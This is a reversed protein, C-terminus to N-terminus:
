PNNSIRKVSLSANADESLNIDSVATSELALDLIEGGNLHMIISGSFITDQDTSLVGTQLTSLIFGGGNIRVGASITTITATSAVRVMFNIEYDGFQFVQITNVSLSVDFFPMQVPLEVQQIEGPATFNFGQSETSYLGGYANPLLKFQVTTPPEFVAIDIGDALFFLTDGYGVTGQMGNSDITFLTEGPEFAGTPGTPGTDGNAGTAGTPGTVGDAGTAGTPGTDGTAGTVGTAGTPGTDGTAGTAGTPGTDGTAGTAGTPGTDGTAGTAGTPGTDGTAGTAGTVGTDGTAGTAGTAGTDGTAGTAGTVGTDGTAGTAGTVGTDGTAGTAGTVGTD